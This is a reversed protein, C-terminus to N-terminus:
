ATSQRRSSKRSTRLIDECNADFRTDWLHISAMLDETETLKRDIGFMSKVFECGSDACLQTRSRSGSKRDTAQYMYAECAKLLNTLRKWLRRGSTAFSNLLEATEYGKHRMIYEDARKIKGSLKILLMWLEGAVDVMPHPGAFYYHSWDYIWKGLSNADFVSGALLIPTEDPDWNKTSFGPPIGAAKIDAETAKGSPKPSTPTRSSPPAARTSTSARRAHSRHVDKEHIPPVQSSFSYRDTTAKTKRTYATTHSSRSPRVGRPERYIYTPEDDAEDVVDIIIPRKPMRSPRVYDYGFLGFGNSNGSSYGYPPIDGPMSARHKRKKQGFFASVNDYKRPSAYEPISEKYDPYTSSRGFDRPSAHSARRSHRKSQSWPTAPPPVYFSQYYQPVAPSQYYPSGPPSTTYDYASWGHQPSSYQYM